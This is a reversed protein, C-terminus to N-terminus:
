KIKKPLNKMIGEAEGIIRDILEKVTPMDNIRQATEGAATLANEEDGSYAGALGEAETALLEPDASFIDGAKGLYLEPNHKITLEGLRTCIAGKVLRAPGVFGRVAMTARDGSELVKKKWLDPFDSDKTVLFRSGMQVGCAGLALAAVLTKSDCFGGCGIVPTEVADVVAPLLTMTHLPEWAIHYGGEHGSAIIGDVEAKECRKAARVSPVVHFWKIGSPKVTETWPLPDGASTVLVKFRRKMEPDEDRVEITAKIIDEAMGRMEESVMCNVGFIGKSEKTAALVKYYSKKLIEIPTAKEPDAGVSKALADGIFEGMVMSALGSSSVLGVAGANAVAACLDNTSMPGMGAQIIPHEIGIMDTLKTEIM